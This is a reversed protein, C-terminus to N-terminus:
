RRRPSAFWKGGIAGEFRWEPDFAPETILIPARRSTGIEKSEIKRTVSPMQRVTGDPFEVDIM